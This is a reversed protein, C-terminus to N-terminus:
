YIFYFRTSVHSFGDPDPIEGSFSMQFGQEIMGTELAKLLSTTETSDNGFIDINIEGDQFAIESELDYEPTNNAVSFIYCPLSMDAEPRQQYVTIILGEVTIASLISFIDEKPEYM